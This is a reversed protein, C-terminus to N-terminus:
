LAGASTLNRGELNETGENKKEEKMWDDRILCRRHSVSQPSPSNLFHVIWQTQRSFSRTKYPGCIRVFILVVLFVPVTISPLNSHAVPPWLLLFYFPFFSLCLFFLSCLHLCSELPSFLFFFSRFIVLSPSEMNWTFNVCLFYIDIWLTTKSFFIM